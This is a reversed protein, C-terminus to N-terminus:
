GNKRVPGKISQCIARAICYLSALIFSPFSAWTGLVTIAEEFNMHFGYEDYGLHFNGWFWIFFIALPIFFVIFTKLFRKM